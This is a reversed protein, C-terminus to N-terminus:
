LSRSESPKFQDMFATFGIAMIAGIAVVGVFAFCLEPGSLTGIADKAEEPVAERCLHRYVGPALITM